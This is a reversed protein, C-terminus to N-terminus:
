QMTRLYYTLASYVLASTGSPDDVQLYVIQMVVQMFVRSPKAPRGIRSSWDRGSPGPLHAFAGWCPLPIVSSFVRGLSAPDNLSLTGPRYTLTKRTFTSPM